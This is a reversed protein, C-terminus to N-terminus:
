RKSLCSYLEMHQQCPLRCFFLYQWWSRNRTCRLFRQLSLAREWLQIDSQYLIFPGSGVNRCLYYRLSVASSNNLCRHDWTRVFRYTYISVSIVYFLSLSFPLSSFLKGCLHLSVKSDAKSIGPSAPLDTWSLGPAKFFTLIQSCSIHM